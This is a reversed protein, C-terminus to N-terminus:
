RERELITEIFDANEKYTGNEVVTTLSTIKTESTVIGLDEGFACIGCYIGIIVAIAIIIKKM